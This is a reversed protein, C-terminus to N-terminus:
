PQVSYMVSLTEAGGSMGAVDIVTDLLAYPWLSSSYTGCYDTVAYDWSNTTPATAAGRGSGPNRWYFNRRVVYYIGSSTTSGNVRHIIISNKSANTSFTLGARIVVQNKTLSSDGSQSLPQIAQIGFEDALVDSVDIEVYGSYLREDDGIDMSSPIVFNKNFTTLNPDLEIMTFKVDEDEVALAKKEGTDNDTIELTYEVHPINENNLNEKAFVSEGLFVFFFAVCSVITSIKKINM